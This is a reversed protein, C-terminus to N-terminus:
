EQGLLWDSLNYIKIGEYDYAAHRYKTVLGGKVVYDDFRKATDQENGYCRCFGAFSFPFVHIEIYRGTYM